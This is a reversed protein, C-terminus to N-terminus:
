VHNNNNNFNYINYMPIVGYFVTNFLNDYVIIEQFFARMQGQFSKQEIGKPFYTEWSLDIFLHLFNLYKLKQSRGNDPIQSYAKLNNFLRKKVHNDSLKRLFTRVFEFNLYSKNFYEFM